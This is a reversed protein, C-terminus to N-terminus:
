GLWKKELELLQKLKEEPLPPVQYNEIIDRAKKNLRENLTLPKIEKSRDFQSPMWFSRFYKFTHEDTLFHGGPGVRDIVDLALTEKNIDIGAMIHKVIGIIEDALLFGEPCCLSAQDMYGVDHVLNAGSLAAMLISLAMDAGCQADVLKADTMGATGWMPIKYYHAVDTLAACNLYLEPASYCYRATKMDMVSPIGGFVFPAGPNTLQHIVLGTLSEAITQALRGAATAPATAGGMPMPYYVIPFRREACLMVAEIGNGDHCLPSIPEQIHFMYPNQELEKHGGAIIAGMDMIDQLSNVDKCNFGITKTCYLIMQRVMVRDAVEIPYDFAHFQTLVFDINQGYDLILGIQKADDSM